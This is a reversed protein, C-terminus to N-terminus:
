NKGNELKKLKQYRLYRYYNTDDLRVYENVLIENESNDQDYVVWLGIIGHSDAFIKHWFKFKEGVKYIYWCNPPFKCDVITLEIKETDKTIDEQKYKELEERKMNKQCEYLM